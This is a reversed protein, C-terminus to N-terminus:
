IKSDRKAKEYIAREKKTVRRASIARIKNGRITYAVFLITGSDTQGLCFCREEKQSHKIDSYLLLPENFFIEEIEQWSVKHKKENKYINGNDWDFGVIKDLELCSFGM